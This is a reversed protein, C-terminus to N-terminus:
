SIRLMLGKRSGLRRSVSAPLSRPPIAGGECPLLRLRYLGGGLAWHCCQPRPRLMHPHLGQGLPNARSINRVTELNWTLEWKREKAAGAGPPWICKINTISQPEIIQSIWAISIQKVSTCATKLNYQEEGRATHTLM